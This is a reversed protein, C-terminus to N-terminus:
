EDEDAYQPPSKGVRQKMKPYQGEPVAGEVAEVDIRHQWCQSSSEM